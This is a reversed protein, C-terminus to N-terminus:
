GEKIVKQELTVKLGDKGPKLKATFGGKKITIGDIEYKAMPEIASLLMEKMIKLGPSGEFIEKVKAESTAIKEKKETDIKAEPCECKKTVEEDIDDQNFTDPVEIARYQGCFVCKGQVNKM